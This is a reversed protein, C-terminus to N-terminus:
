LAKEKSNKPLRWVTRGGSPSQGELIVGQGYRGEEVQLHEEHVDKQVVIRDGPRARVLADKITLFDDAKAKQGTVYLTKPTSRSSAGKKTESTGHYVAWLVGLLVILAFVGAAVFYWFYPHRQIGETQLVRSRPGYVITDTRALPNDTDNTLKDWPVGGNEERPSAAVAVGENRSTPEGSSLTTKMASSASRGQARPPTSPPSALTSPPKA